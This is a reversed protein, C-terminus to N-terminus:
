RGRVAELIRIAPIAAAIDAISHDRAGAVLEAMDAFVRARLLVNPTKPRETTGNPGSVRLIEGTLELTRDDSRLVVRSLNATTRCTASASLVAGSEFGVTVSARTDIANRLDFGLEAHVSRPTGLLLCALDLQHVALHALVGGGSEAAVSRWSGDAFRDLPRHRAVEVVGVTENPWPTLHDAVEFRHQCMVLAPVGAVSARRCMDECADVTLALPKEVVVPKRAQVVAALIEPHSGPPTAVSVVDVDRRALLDDTDGADAGCAGALEKARDVDADAVAVVRAGDLATLAAVHQRAAAGAGVIGVGIPRGRHLLREM